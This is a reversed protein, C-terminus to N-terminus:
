AISKLDIEKNYKKAWKWVFLADVAPLVLYNFYQIAQLTQELQNALDYRLLLYMVFAIIAVANVAFM